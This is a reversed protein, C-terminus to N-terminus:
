CANEEFESRDGFCSRRGREQPKRRDLTELAHELAQMLEHLKM